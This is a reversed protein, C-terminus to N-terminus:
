LGAREYPDMVHPCHQSAPTFRPFLQALSLFTGALVLNSAFVDKKKKSVEKDRWKNMHLNLVSTLERTLEEQYISAFLSDKGTLVCLSKTTRHQAQQGHAIRVCGLRLWLGEVSRLREIRTPLPM